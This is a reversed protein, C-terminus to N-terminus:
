LMCEDIPRWKLCFFSLIYSIWHLYHVDSIIESMRTGIDPYRYRVDPDPYRYALALVQALHILSVLVNPRFFTDSM